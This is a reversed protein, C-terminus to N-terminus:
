PREMVYFGDENKYGMRRNIKLMARNESSNNTRIRAANNHKGHQVAVHKLLSAVGLDRFDRSTATYRNYLEFHNWQQLIIAGVWEEGILAVFVGARLVTPVATDDYWAEYTPPLVDDRHPLDTYTGALAEYLRLWKERGGGFSEMSRVHIGNKHARRLVDRMTSADYDKVDLVSEKIHERIRYGRKYAWKRSPEDSAKVSTQATTFQINETYPLLAEEM